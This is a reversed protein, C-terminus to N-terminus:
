HKWDYTRNFETYQVLHLYKGIIEGNNVNRIQIFKNIKKKGFFSQLYRISKFHKSKKEHLHLFSSM